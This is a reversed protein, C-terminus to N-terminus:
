PFNSPLPVSKFPFVYLLYLPLWPCWDPMKWVRNWQTKLHFLPSYCHFDPVNESFRHCNQARTRGISLSPPSSPIQLMEGLKWSVKPTFKAARRRSTAATAICRWCVIAISNSIIKFGIMDLRLPLHLLLTQLTKEWNGLPKKPLNWQGIRRVDTAVVLPHACTRWCCKM